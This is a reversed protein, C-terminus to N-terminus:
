LPMEGELLVGLGLAPDGGEFGEDGREGEALPGGAGAGGEESEILLAEDACDLEAVTLTITREAAM